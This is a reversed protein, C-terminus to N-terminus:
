GLYLRYGSPMLCVPTVCVKAMRRPLWCLQLFFAFLDLCKWNSYQQQVLISREKFYDSSVLFNTSLNYSESTTLCRSRGIVFLHLPECRLKLNTSRIVSDIACSNWDLRCCLCIFIWQSNFPVMELNQILSWHYASTNWVCSERKVDVPVPVSKTKFYTQYLIIENASM